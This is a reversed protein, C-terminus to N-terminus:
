RLSAFRDRYMKLQAKLIKRAVHIRTKVTGVPINLEKAIEHYKYGEFYRLFPLSYAPQLRDLAKNIDEMLFKNEGLNTVASISLQQSSFDDTIEILEKKRSGKHYDNIFTNRMITYLWGRLNTGQKYLHHHRIAKILTDQVLDNADDENKTFKMAFSELCSQHSCIQLNFAISNKM